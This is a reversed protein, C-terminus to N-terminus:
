GASSSPCSAILMFKVHCFCRNYYCVTQVFDVLVPCTHTDLLQPCFSLNTFFRHKLEWEQYRKRRPACRSHFQFLSDPRRAAAATRHVKREPTWGGVISELVSGVISDDPHGDGYRTGRCGCVLQPHAVVHFVNADGPQNGLVGTPVQITYIVGTDPTGCWFKRGIPRGPPKIRFKVCFEYGWGYRGTWKHYIECM